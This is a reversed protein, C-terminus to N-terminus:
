GMLHRWSWRSGAGTVEYRSPDIGGYGLPKCNTIKLDGGEEQQKALDVIHGNKLPTHGQDTLVMVRPWLRRKPTHSIVVGLEQTSLEVITGTPYVGVAQIFHDVLDEQFLSNRREYLRSVAQAPTLQDDAARPEIMSEYYDVLGVIKALLPIEEGGVERPFGSGNHRERHYRIVNVVVRPLGSAQAIGAGLEPYQIYEQWQDASLRSESVRLSEQLKAKGVQSLLAGMSLKQLVDPDLGLQRGLLLGWISLNLSHSYTYNDRSQVRSLWLLADPNRAVSEVMSRAVSEVADVDPRQDGRAVSESVRDLAQEVDGLLPEVDKLERKLSRTTEYHYPNRIRVAPLKVVREASKGGKTPRPGAGAAAGQVKERAEAVDVFVHRCCRILQDLEQQNRIYFGQIPFPTEHWPRDLDAVFMGIELEQVPLKKRQVGM